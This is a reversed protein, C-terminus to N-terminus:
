KKNEKNRYYRDLSSKRHFNKLYKVSCEKSCTRVLSTLKVTYEGKKLKRNNSNTVAVPKKNKDGCIACQRIEKKM